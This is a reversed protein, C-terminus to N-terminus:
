IAFIMSTVLVSVFWASIGTLVLMLLHGVLSQEGILVRFKASRVLLIYFIFLTLPTIAWSTLLCKYFNEPYGLRFCYATMYSAASAPVIIVGHIWAIAKWVNKRDNTKALRSLLSAHALISSLYAWSLTIGLSWPAYRYNFLFHSMAPHSFITLGGLFVLLFLLGSLQSFKQRHTM